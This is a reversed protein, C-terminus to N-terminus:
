CNYCVKADGHSKVCKRMRSYRWECMNQNDTQASNSHQLRERNIPITRARSSNISCANIGRNIHRNTQTGPQRDTRRICRDRHGDLREKSLYQLQRFSSHHEVTYFPSLKWRTNIRDLKVQHLSITQDVRNSPKSDYRRHGMHAIAATCTTSSCCHTCLQVDAGFGQARQRM